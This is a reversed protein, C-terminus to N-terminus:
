RLPKKTPVLQLMICKNFWALVLIPKTEWDVAIVPLLFCVKELTETKM